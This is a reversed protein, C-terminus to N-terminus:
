AQMMLNSLSRLYFLTTLGEMSASDATTIFYVVGVHFDAVAAVTDGFGAVAFAVDIGMPM